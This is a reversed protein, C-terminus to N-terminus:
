MTPVLTKSGNVPTEVAAVVALVSNKFETSGLIGIAKVQKLSEVVAYYAPNNRFDVVFDKSPRGRRILKFFENGLFAGLYRFKGKRGEVRVITGLEM